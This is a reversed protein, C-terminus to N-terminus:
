SQVSPFSCPGRCRTLHMNMAIVLKSNYAPLNREENMLSTPYPRPYINVIDRMDLGNSSILVTVKFPLRLLKIVGDQM